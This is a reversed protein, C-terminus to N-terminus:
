QISAPIIKAAEARVDAKPFTDPYLYHAAELLVIERAIPGHTEVWHDGVYHVRGNKVASLEQWIPNDENPRDPGNDYVFIVDPDKALIEELSLAVGFKTPVHPTPNHGAINEGGLATLIAATMNESYFTFMTDGTWAIQFSPHEGEPVKAVVEELHLKFQANLEKAREPQGLITGLQLLTRDSDGFLEINYALFPAIAQFQDAYAETYRRIGVILDPEAEAALEFNAAARQGIQVADETLGLLFDPYRGEVMFTSAVPKIGLAIAVDAAYFSVAAIRQPNQPVDVIVGRDDVVPFTQVEQAFAPAIAAVGVAMALGCARLFKSSM